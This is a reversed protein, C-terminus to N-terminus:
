KSRRNKVNSNESKKFDNFIFEWQGKVSIQETKFIAGPVNARGPLLLAQKLERDPDRIVQIKALKPFLFPM